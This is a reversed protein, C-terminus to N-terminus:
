SVVEKGTSFKKILDKVTKTPKAGKDLWYQVRDMKLNIVAPDKQVDYYGVIEIFRGDRPSEKDAVIIRYFPNDKSGLRTLRIKVM